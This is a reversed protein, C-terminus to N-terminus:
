ASLLVQQQVPILIQFETGRGLESVCLLQGGHKETIIQHSISLGLGTGKGLPKTTFFSDFLKCRVAEPMGPGNDAIRISVHNDAHRETTITIQAPQTTRAAAEASDTSAKFQEELVDIANALINMFVQSLQGAYCEVLPLDGYAKVVTIAPHNPRAKLRHQLILLTSDIGEHIDVPKMETEDMRSFNRLSLVIQRIRDTGLKMSELIKPLDDKIFELDAVEDPGIAASTSASAPQGYQDVLRLLDQAYDELHTLNGAIFNIPNNIEHAVGAVLQGLSSMKETQVLQAQTQRLEKLTQELQQTQDRLRAESQRLTQEVQKRETIENLLLENAMQLSQLAATREEVTAALQQNAVALAVESQRREAVAATLVLTTIAVTGMFTQLLLLSENLSSRVFSGNGQTTGWLALVVVLAIGTAAGRHGFRFAAWILAPILLYEVPYGMGFALKGIGLLIALFLLMELVQQRRFGGHICRWALLMPLFVLLSIMNGIWWTFWVSGFDGWASIGFACLSMVGITANLAPALATILTVKFVSKVQQFPYSTPVLRRILYTGLTAELAPSVACITGVAIATILNQSAEFFGPTSAFFDGLVIAPTARYGLTLVGFWAIPAPLWVPTVNGPPIPLSVLMGLKAAGYYLVAFGATVMLWRM